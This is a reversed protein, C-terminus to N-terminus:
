KRPAKGPEQVQGGKSLLQERQRKRLLEAQDRAEILLDAILEAYDDLGAIVFQQASSFGCNAALREIREDLQTDIRQKFQRKGEEDM